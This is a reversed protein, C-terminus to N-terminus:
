KKSDVAELIRRYEEMRGSEEAYYKIFQRYRKRESKLTEELGETECKKKIVSYSKFNLYSSFAGATACLAAVSFHPVDTDYNITGDGIAMGTILVSFSYNVLSLKDATAIKVKRVISDLDM